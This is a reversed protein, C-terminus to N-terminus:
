RELIVVRTAVQSGQGIVDGDGYHLCGCPPHMVDSILLYDAAPHCHGFPLAITVKDTKTQRFCM